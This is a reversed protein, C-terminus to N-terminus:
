LMKARLSRAAGGMPARGGFGGGFEGANVGVLWGDAVRLKYPPMLHWLGRGLKVTKGDQAVSWVRQSHKACLLELGGIPSPYRAWGKPVPATTPAAPPHMALLERKLQTAAELLPGERFSRIFDEYAEVTSLLQAKQFAERAREEKVTALMQTDVKRAHLAHEAALQVRFDPDGLREMLPPIALPDGIRGLLEAAEARVQANSDEKLVQLLPFVARSDTLPRLVSMVALRLDDERSQLLLLFPEVLRPDQLARLARVAEWRMPGDRSQLQQLWDDVQDARAMMVHWGMGALLLIALLKCRDM